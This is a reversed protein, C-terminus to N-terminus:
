TRPLLKYPHRSKYMLVNTGYVTRMNSLMFCHSPVNNTASQHPNQWRLSSWLYTNRCFPTVNTSKSRHDIKFSWNNSSRTTSHLPGEVTFHPLETPVQEDSIQTCFRPQGNITMDYLDIHVPTIDNIIDKRAILTIPYSVPHGVILTQPIPVASNLVYSNETTVSNRPNPQPVSAGAIEASEIVLGLIATIAMSSRGTNWVDYYLVDPTVHDNTFLDAKDFDRTTSIRPSSTRSESSTSPSLTQQTSPTSLFLQHDYLKASPFAIQFTSTNDLTKMFGLKEAFKIASITKSKEIVKCYHWTPLTPITYYHNMLTTGSQIGYLEGFQKMKPLYQSLRNSIQTLLQPTFGINEPSAALLYTYPNLSSSAGKISYKEFPTTILNERRSNSPQVIPTLLKHCTEVIRSSYYGDQNNTGLLNAIKFTHENQEGQNFTIIETDFWENLIDSTSNCNENNALIDHLMFFIYGPYTRGFDHPFSFCAFSNIYALNPRRPDFTPALARIFEFLFEPVYYWTTANLLQERNDEKLFENGHPSTTMRIQLADNICAYSHLLQFCYGVITAPTLLPDDCLKLQNYIRIAHYSCTLFLNRYDPQVDITISTGPSTKLKSSLNMKKTIEDHSDIPPPIPPPISQPNEITDIEPAPSATNITPSSTTDMKIKESKHNKLIKSQNLESNSECLNIVDLERTVATLFKM